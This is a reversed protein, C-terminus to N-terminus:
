RAAYIGHDEEALMGDRGPGDPRQDAPLVDRVARMVAPLEDFAPRYSLSYVPVAAAFAAYDEVLRRTEIPDAPDFCHAHTLLQQFAGAITLRRCRVQEPLNPQQDLVIVAVLPRRRAGRGRAALTQHQRFHLRASARLRPSFPLGIAAVANGGEWVVADDAWQECDRGLAYALTSKGAGSKGCLAVVHVGVSVASAHLAQWGIAQLVVPQLVRFFTNEVVDPSAGPALWATVHPARAMFAFTALGPWDVFRRDGAAYAAAYVEGTETSWTQALRGETVPAPAGTAFTLSLM